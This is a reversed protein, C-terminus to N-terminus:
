RRAFTTEASAARATVNSSAKRWEDDTSEDETMIAARDPPRAPPLDVIRAIGREDDPDIPPPLLVTILRLVVM